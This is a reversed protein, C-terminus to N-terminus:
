KKMGDVETKLEDVKKALEDVRAMKEKLSLVEGALKREGDAGVNQWALLRRAAEPDPPVDSVGAPLPVLARRLAAVDDRLSKVDAEIAALRADTGGTACGGAVGAALAATLLVGAIWRM